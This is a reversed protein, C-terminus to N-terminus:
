NFSSETLPTSFFVSICILRPTEKLKSGVTSAFIEDGWYVSGNSVIGIKISLPVNDSPAISMVPVSVCFICYEVISFVVSEFYWYLM